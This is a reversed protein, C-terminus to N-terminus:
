SKFWAIDEDKPTAVDDSLPHNNCNVEYGSGNPGHVWGMLESWRIISGCNKCLMM